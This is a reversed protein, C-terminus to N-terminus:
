KEFFFFGRVCSVFDLNSDYFLAILECWFLLLFRLRACNGCLFKQYSTAWYDLLCYWFVVVVVGMDQDKKLFSVGGRSEDFLLLADRHWVFDAAVRSPGAMAAKSQRWSRGHRASAPQLLARPPGGVCRSSRNRLQWTRLTARSPKGYGGNGPRWQRIWRTCNILTPGNDDQSFEAHKKWFLKKVKLKKKAQPPPPVM